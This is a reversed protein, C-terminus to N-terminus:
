KLSLTKNVTYSQVDRFNGFDKYCAVSTEIKSKGDIIFTVKVDYTSAAETGNLTFCVERNINEDGASDFEQLKSKLYLNLESNTDSLEEEIEEITSWALTKCGLQVENRSAQAFLTYAVLLMSLCFAFIVIGVVLATIM